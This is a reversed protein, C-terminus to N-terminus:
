ANSRLPGINDIDLQLGKVRSRVDFNNAFICLFIFHFFVKTSFSASLHNKTEQFVISVKTKTVEPDDPKRNKGFRNM